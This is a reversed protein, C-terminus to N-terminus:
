AQGFGENGATSKEGSLFETLPVAFCCSLDMNESKCYFFMFLFNVLTVCFWVAQNWPRLNRSFILSFELTYRSCVLYGRFITQILIAAAEENSKGPFRTATARRRVVEPPASSSPVVAAPVDTTSANVANTSPPSLNKNQEVIVEAVRVELPPPPPPLSPQRANDPQPPPNSVVGNPSEPSKHKSKHFFVDVFDICVLIHIM